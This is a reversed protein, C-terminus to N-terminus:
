IQNCVDKLTRHKLRFKSIITSAPIEPVDSLDKDDPAQPNSTQAEPPKEEEDAFKKTLKFRKKSSSSLKSVKQGNQANMLKRRVKQVGAAGDRPPNDDIGAPDSSLSPSM